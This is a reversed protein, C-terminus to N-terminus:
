ERESTFRSGQAIAAEVSRQVSDTQSGIEAEIQAIEDDDMGRQRLAEARSILDAIFDDRTAVEDVIYASGFDIDVLRNPWVDDVDVVWWARVGDVIPATSVIADVRLGMEVMKQIGDRQNETIRRFTGDTKRNLIELAYGSVGGFSRISEADIRELGMLEFLGGDLQDKHQAFAETNISLTIVEVDTGGPFVIADAIDKHITFVGYDDGAQERLYAEDGTVALNGFSNYRIALFELQSVANYRDVSEMLQFTIVPRGYMSRLSQNEGHVHVWPIFPLGLRRRDIEEGDEEIIEVCEMAVIVEGTGEDLDFVPASIEGDEDALFFMPVMTWRHVRRVEITEGDREIFVHEETRIETLTQWDDDDYDAEVTEAEWLHWVSQPQEEDVNPAAVTNVFLDGAIMTERALEQKRFELGSRRFCRPIWDEVDEAIPQDNEDRASRITMQGTIQDALFNIGQPVHTSYAHIRHHEPMRQWRDSFSPDEATLKEARRANEDVYQTGEYYQRRLAVGQRRHQHQAGKEGSEPDLPQIEIVRSLLDSPVPM